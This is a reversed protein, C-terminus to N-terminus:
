SINIWKLPINKGYASRNFSNEELEQLIFAFKKGRHSGKLLQSFFDKIVKKALLLNDKGSKFRFTNITKGIGSNKNTGIEIFERNDKYIVSYQEFKMGIDVAKKKSIGTIFLSKESTFGEEEKYGGRMEIYGVGQELCIKKLEIHNLGNVKKPLSKRYASIVSFSYKDDEIHQWIRSLSSEKIYTNFKM